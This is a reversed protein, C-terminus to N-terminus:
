LMVLALVIVILVLCYDLLMVIYNFFSLIWANGRQLSVELTGEGNASFCM